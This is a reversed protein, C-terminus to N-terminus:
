NIQNGASAGFGFCIAGTDTTIFTAYNYTGVFGVGSNVDVDDSFFVGGFVANASPEFAFTVFGTDLNYVSNSWLPVSTINGLISEIDIEVTAVGSTGSGVINTSLSGCSGTVTDDTTSAPNTTPSQSTLKPPNANIISSSCYNKRVAFARLTEPLNTCDSKLKTLKYYRKPRSAADMTQAYAPESVVAAVPAVSLLLAIGFVFQKVQIKM